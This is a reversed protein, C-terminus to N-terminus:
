RKKDVKVKKLKSSSDKDPEEDADSDDNKDKKAFLNKMAGFMKTAISPQRKKMIKEYSQPFNRSLFDLAEEDSKGCENLLYDHQEQPKMEEWNLIGVYYDDPISSTKAHATLKERTMLNNKLMFACLSYLGKIDRKELDAAMHPFIAVLYKRDGVEKAIEWISAIRSDGAPNANNAVIALLEFQRTDEFYDSTYLDACIAAVENPTMTKNKLGEKLARLLTAFVNKGEQSIAWATATDNSQFKLLNDVLTRIAKNNLPRSNRLQWTFLKTFYGDELRDPFLTFFDIETNYNQLQETLKKAIKSETAPDRKELIKLLTAIFADQNKIEKRVVSNFVNAPVKDAIMREILYVHDRVRDRLFYPYLAEWDSLMATLYTDHDESTYAEPNIFQQVAPFRDKFKRYFSEFANKDEFVSSTIVRRNADLAKSCDIGKRGDRSSVALIYEMWNWLAPLNELSEFWNQLSGEFRRKEEPKTAWYDILTDRLNSDTALMRLNKDFEPYNYVYNYLQTQTEKSFNKGKEYMPSLCWGVLKHIAEYDGRDIYQEVNRRFLAAEPTQPMENAELDLYVWQKKFIEFTYYENIFVINIGRKKGEDSHNTIFTLNEIQDQPMLAALEAMLRPPTTVDSKVLVPKEEKRGQIFAFLLDVAQKGPM